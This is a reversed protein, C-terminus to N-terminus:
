RACGRRVEEDRAERESEGARESTAREAHTNSGHLTASTCPAACRQAPAIHVASACSAAAATHGDASTMPRRLCTQRRGLRRADVTACSPRSFAPPATRAAPRYASTHPPARVGALAATDATHEVRLRAQMTSLAASNRASCSPARKALCVVHQHAEQM